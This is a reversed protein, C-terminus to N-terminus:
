TFKSNQDAPIPSIFDWFTSQNTSQKGMLSQHNTALINMNKGHECARNKNYLMNNYDDHLNEVISSEVLSELIFWDMWRRSLIDDFFLCKLCVFGVFANVGYNKWMDFSLNLLVWVFIQTDRMSKQPLRLNSPEGFRGFTPLVFTMLIVGGATSLRVFRSFLM